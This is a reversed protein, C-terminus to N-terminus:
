DRKRQLLAEVHRRLGETVPTAPKHLGAAVLPELDYVRHCFFPAQDPHKALHAQVPVEEVTMTVGLIDAIIRYYARSEVVDPGATNFIRRSTKENGAISLITAALDDALIPQQLFHGNGVLRLPTGARLKEILQPDRGHLPLCGLESTPGYIHCPRVITWAMAGTDGHILELECLRKNRGYDTSDLPIDAWCDGNVPQPFQRRAPDYVFDTSVFVFQAACGRFLRIDQLIAPRAYCICDIVVDWTASAGAIAAAIACDDNRDAVLPRVGQPLERKGRTVTWVTHQGAVAARAVAGSVHGSGGIILIKMTM